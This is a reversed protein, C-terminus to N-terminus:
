GRKRGMRVLIRAVGGDPRMGRARGAVADRTFDVRAWSFTESPGDRRSELDGEARHEGVPPVLRPAANKRLTPFSFRQDQLTGHRHHRDSAGQGVARHFQEVTEYGDNPRAQRRGDVDVVEGSENFPIPGGEHSDEIALEARPGPDPGRRRTGRIEPRGRPSRGRVQRRHPDGGARVATPQFRLIALREGCVGSPAAERDFGGGGFERGAERGGFGAAQDMLVVGRGLDRVLDGADEGREEEVERLGVADDEGELGGGADAAEDGGGGAGGEVVDAPEDDLPGLERGAHELGEAGVEVDVVARELAPDALVGGLVGAADAEDDAVRGVARAAGADGLVGRALVALLRRVRVEQAAAEVQEGRVAEAHVEDGAAEERPARRRVDRDALLDELPVVQGRREAQGGADEGARLDDGVQQEEAGAAALEAHDVWAVPEDEVPLPELLVRVRDEPLLDALVAAVVVLRPRRAPAVLDDALELPQRVEDLPRDAVGARDRALDNRKRRLRLPAAHGALELLGGGAEGRMCSGGDREPQADIPVERRDRRLRAVLVDQQPGLQVVREDAPFLRMAVRVRALLQAREDRLAVGARLPEERRERLGPLQDQAERRLRRPRRPERAARVVEDREGLERVPRAVV